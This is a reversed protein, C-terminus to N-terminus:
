HHPLAVSCPSSSIPADLYQTHTHTHLLSPLPPLFLLPVSPTDKRIRAWLTSYIRVDFAYNSLVSAQVIASAVVASPIGAVEPIEISAATVKLARLKTVAAVAAKRLGAVDVSKGAAGLFSVLTRSTDTYTVAVSEREADKSSLTSTSPERFTFSVHTDSGSPTSSITTSSIVRPIVPFPGTAYNAYLGKCGYSSMRRYLTSARLLIKAPCPLSLLEGEEDECSSPRDM